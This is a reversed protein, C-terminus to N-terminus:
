TSLDVRALVRRAGYRGIVGCSGRRHRGVPTGEGAGDVAEAEDVVLLGPRQLTLQDLRTALASLLVQQQEFVWRGVGEARAAPRLIQKGVRVKQTGKV